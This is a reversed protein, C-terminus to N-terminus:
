TDKFVEAMTMEVRSRKWTKAVQEVSRSYFDQSGGLHVREKIMHRSKVFNKVSNDAPELTLSWRM